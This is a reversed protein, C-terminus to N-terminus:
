ENKTIGMNVDSRSDAVYVGIAYLKFIDKSKIEKENETNTRIAQLLLLLINKFLFNRCIHM